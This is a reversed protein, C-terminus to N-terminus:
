ALIESLRSRAAKPSRNSRRTRSREACYPWGAGSPVAPKGSKVAEIFAAIENAYAAIYRTMFFDLLPPRTFGKTMPSKSPPRASTRRRRCAQRATCRSASTTAMPPAARTPSSPRGAARRRSRHRQRQRYDGAKGIAHRGARLRTRQVAVPEEGLLFRAMDFDHITM